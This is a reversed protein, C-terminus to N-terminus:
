GVVDADDSQGGWRLASTGRGGENVDVDGRWEFASRQEVEGGGGHAGTVSPSWSIVTLHGGCPQRREALASGSSSGNVVIRDDFLCSSSIVRKIAIM